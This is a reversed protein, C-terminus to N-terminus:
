WPWLLSRLPLSYFYLDTELEQKCCCVQPHYVQIFRLAASGWKAADPMTFIRQARRRSLIIIWEPGPSYILLHLPFLIQHKLSWAFIRTITNTRSNSNIASNYSVLSSFIEFGNRSCLSFFSTVNFLRWIAGYLVPSKNTKCATFTRRDAVGSM